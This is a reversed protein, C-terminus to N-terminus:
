TEGDHGPVGLTRFINDNCCQLGELLVVAIHCLYSVRRLVYCVCQRLQRELRKYRRMQQEPRIDGM